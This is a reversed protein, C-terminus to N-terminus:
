MRISHFLAAVTIAPMSEPSTGYTAAASAVGHSPTQDSSGSMFFCVTTGHQVVLSSTAARLLSPKSKQSDRAIDDQLTGSLHPGTRAPGAGAVFLTGIPATHPSKELRRGVRLFLSM